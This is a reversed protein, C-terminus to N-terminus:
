LNAALSLLIVATILIKVVWKIGRINIDLSIDKKPNERTFPFVAESCGM